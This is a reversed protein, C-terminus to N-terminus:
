GRAPPQSVEFPMRHMENADLLVHAAYPGYNEFSLNDFNVVLTATTELRDAPDTFDVTGQVAARDADM